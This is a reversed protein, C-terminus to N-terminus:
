VMKGPGMSREDGVSGGNVTVRWGMSIRVNLIWTPLSAVGFHNLKFRM